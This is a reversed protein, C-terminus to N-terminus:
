RGEMGELGEELDRSTRSLADGGEKASLLETSVEDPKPPPPQQGVVVAYPVNSYM